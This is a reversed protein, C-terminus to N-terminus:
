IKIIQQNQKLILIKLLKKLIFAIYEAVDFIKVPKNSILTIKKNSYKKLKIFKYLQESFKQLSLIELNNEM